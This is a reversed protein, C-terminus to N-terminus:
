KLRDLLTQIRHEGKEYLPNARKMEAVVEEYSDGDVRTALRFEKQWYSCNNKDSKACHYTMLFFSSYRLGEDFSKRLTLIGEDLGEASDTTMLISYGKWFYGVKDQSYTNSIIMRADEWKEQKDGLLYNQALTKGALEHGKDYAKLFLSNARSPNTKNLCVAALYVTTSLANAKEARELYDDCRDAYSNISTLLLFLMILHKM